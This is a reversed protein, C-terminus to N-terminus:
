ESPAFRGHSDRSFDIRNQQIMCSKLNNFSYFSIAVAANGGRLSLGKSM